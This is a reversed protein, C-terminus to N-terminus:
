VREKIFNTIQNQIEEKTMDGIDPKSIEPFFLRYTNQCKDKIEKAAKQGAEDNDTLVFLTM